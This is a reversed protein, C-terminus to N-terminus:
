FHKATTGSTGRWLQCQVTRKALSRVQLKSNSSRRWKAAIHRGLYTVTSNDMFLTHVVRVIIM